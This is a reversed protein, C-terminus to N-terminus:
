LCVCGYRSRRDIIERLGDTEGKKVCTPQGFGGTFPGSRQIAVNLVGDRTVRKCSAVTVKRQEPLLWQRPRHRWVLEVIVIPRPCHRDTDEECKLVQRVCGQQQSPTWVTWRMPQPFCLANRRRSFSHGVGLGARFGFGHSRYIFDRFHCRSRILSGL